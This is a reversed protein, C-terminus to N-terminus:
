TTRIDSMYMQVEISMNQNTTKKERRKLFWLQLMHVVLKIHETGPILHLRSLYFLSNYERNVCKNVNVYM